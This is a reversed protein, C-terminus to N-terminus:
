KLKSQTSAPKWGRAQAITTAVSAESESVMEEIGKSAGLTGGWAWLKDFPASFLVHGDAGDKLILDGKFTAAGLGILMFRASRDGPRYSRIIGTVILENEKGLPPGKRVEKFLQGFDEYLRAGVGESFDAGIVPNIEKDAATEFPLVTAIEYKSLDVGAGIAPKLATAQTSSATACGTGLVALACVFLGVHIWETFTLKMKSEKRNISKKRKSNGHSLWCAHQTVIM